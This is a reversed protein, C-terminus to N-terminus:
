EEVVYEEEYLYIFGQKFLILIVLLVVTVISIIVILWPIEFPEEYRAIGDVSDYTYEPIGDDNIDLYLKDNEITIDTFINTQSNYFTDSIGNGDVDIIYHVFGSITIGIVDSGIKSNSGILTEINDTLGDGDDDLDGTFNGDSSDDDPVGDGDTDLPYVNSNEFDTGYAVELDNNYGDGDLDVAFDISVDLSPSWHSEDSYITLHKIRVNYVGSSNWSHEQSVYTDSGEVSIWDSFAGDGWDFMWFSGVDLTYVKFEYYTDLDGSAVGSPAAPTYSPSASVSIADNFGVLCFISFFLLFVIFFSALASFIGSFKNTDSSSNVDLSM